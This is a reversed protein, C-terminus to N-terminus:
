ARKATKENRIRATHKLSAMVFGLKKIRTENRIRAKQEFIEM